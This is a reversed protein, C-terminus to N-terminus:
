FIEERIKRGTLEIFVEELNKVRYKEILAKPIGLEILKAKTGTISIAILEHVIRKTNKGGM